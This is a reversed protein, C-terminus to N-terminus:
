KKPNPIFPAQAAFVTEQIRNAIARDVIVKIRAAWTGHTGSQDDSCSIVAVVECSSNVMPGGSDGDRVAFSCKLTNAVSQGRFISYGIAVGSIRAYQKGVWGYGYAQIPDGRVPPKTALRMSPINAGKVGVVAVDWVHDLELIEGKFIRGDPLYIRTEGPGDFAHAATILINIRLANPAVIFFGTFYGRGKYDDHEMRVVAPNKRNDTTDAAKWNIQFQPLIPNSCKGDACEQGFCVVAFFLFYILLVAIVALFFNVIDPSFWGDRKM